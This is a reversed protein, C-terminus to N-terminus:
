KTWLPETTWGAEWQILTSPEKRSALPTPCTVSWEGGELALTLFARLGVKTNGCAKMFNKCPVRQRLSGKRSHSTKSFFDRKRDFMLGLIDTISRLLIRYWNQVTVSLWDKRNRTFIKLRDARAPTGLWNKAPQDSYCSNVHCLSSLFKV